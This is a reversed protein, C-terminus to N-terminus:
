RRAEEFYIEKIQSFPIFVFRDEFTYNDTKPNVMLGEKTENVCFGRITSDSIRHITIDKGLFGRRKEEM